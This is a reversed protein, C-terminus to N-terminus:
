VLDLGLRMKKIFGKRFGRRGQPILGLSKDKLSIYEYYLNTSKSRTKLFTYKFFLCDSIVEKVVM